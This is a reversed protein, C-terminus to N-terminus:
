LSPLEGQSGPFSSCNPSFAAQGLSCLTKLLPIQDRGARLRSLLLEPPLLSWGWEEGAREDGATEEWQDLSVLSFPSGTIRNVLTLGEPDGLLISFLASVLWCVRTSSFEGRLPSSNHIFRFPVKLYLNICVPCSNEFSNEALSVVKKVRKFKGDMYAILIFLFIIFGEACPWTQSRWHSTWLQNIQKLLTRTMLMM